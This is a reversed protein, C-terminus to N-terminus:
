RDVATSAEHFEQVRQFLFVQGSITNGTVVLTV